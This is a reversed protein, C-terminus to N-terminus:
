YTVEIDDFEEELSPEEITLNAFDNTPDSLYDAFIAVAASSDTADQSIGEDDKNVSGIHVKALELAPRVVQEMASKQFSLTLFEFDNEGVFGKLTRVNQTLRDPNIFDGNEERYNIFGIIFERIPTKEGTLPNTWLDSPELSTIDRLRSIGLPEYQFRPVGVEEMVDAMRTLYQAKRPKIKLSNCYDKFTTFPAYYGKRKITLLLDAIDFSSRNVSLILQELQHKTALAEGAIVSDVIVIPSFPQNM